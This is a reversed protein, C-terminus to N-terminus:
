LEIMGEKRGNALRKEFMCECKKSRANPPLFFVAVFAIRGDNRHKREMVGM